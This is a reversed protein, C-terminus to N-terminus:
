IEEKPVIGLQQAVLHSEAMLADHNELAQVLCERRVPCKFCRALGKKLGPPIPKTEIWLGYFWGPPRGACAAYQTWAAPSLNPIM